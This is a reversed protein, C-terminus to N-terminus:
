ADQDHRYGTYGNIDDVLMEYLRTTLSALDGDNNIGIDEIERSTARDSIGHAVRANIDDPKMTPRETQLAQIADGALRDIHVTRPRPELIEQLAMANQPTLIYLPYTNADTQEYPIIAGRYNYSPTELAFKGAKKLEDYQEDNVFVYDDDEPGRQERTVIAKAREFRYPGDDIAELGKAVSSKGAASAGILIFSQAAPIREAM